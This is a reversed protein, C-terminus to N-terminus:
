LIILIVLLVLLLLLFLGFFLWFLLLFWYLIVGFWLSGGCFLWFSGFWRVWVFVLLVIWCIFVKIIFWCRFLLKLLRSCCLSLLFVWFIRLFVVGISLKFLKWRWFLVSWSLVVGILWIWRRELWVLFVLEIYWGFSLWCGDFWLVELSLMVWLWKSILKLCMLVM